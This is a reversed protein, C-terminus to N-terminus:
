VLVNDRFFVMRRSGNNCNLRKTVEKSEMRVQMDQTRVSTEMAAPHEPHRRKKLQLVKFRNKLM